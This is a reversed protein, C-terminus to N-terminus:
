IPENIRTAAGNFDTGNFFTQVINANTNNFHSM